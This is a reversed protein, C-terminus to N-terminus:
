RILALAADPITNQRQDGTAMIARAQGILGVYTQVGTAIAVIPKREADGYTINQAASVLYDSLVAQETAYDKWAQVQAQDRTLAANAANADMNGLHARIAQAAIVSPATDRGITQVGQKAVVIVAVGVIWFLALALALAALGLQMLRPTTLNRLVAIPSSFATTANPRASAGLSAM